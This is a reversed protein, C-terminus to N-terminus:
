YKLLNYCSLNIEDSSVKEMLKFGLHEYKIVNDPNHTQLAIIMNNESCKEFVESMLKRFIGTGQLEKKIVIVQIIFVEKDDAFKKYWEADTISYVKQINEQMISLDEENIENTVYQSDEQLCQIFEPSELKKSNIGILIADGEGYTIVFGMKSFVEVEKRCQAKFIGVSNSVGRLQAIIGPDDKFGNVLLDSYIEIDKMRIEGKLRGYSLNHYIM